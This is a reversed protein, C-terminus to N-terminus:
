SSAMTQPDIRQAKFRKIDLVGTASGCLALVKMKYTDISLDHETPLHLHVSYETRYLRQWHIRFGGGYEPSLQPETRQAEPM